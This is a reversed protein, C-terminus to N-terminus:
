GLRSAPLGGAPQCAGQVSGPLEEYGVAAVGLEQLGQLRISKGLPFQADLVASAAVYFEWQSVDLPDVLEEDLPVLLCFVYVDARRQLNVAAASAGAEGARSVRIPFRVEAAAEEDRDLCPYCASTVEIKLGQSHLLYGAAGEQPRFSAPLGLACSVIYAALAPRTWDDLLDSASWRWFDLLTPGLNGTRARFPEDGSKRPPVPLAQQGEATSENGNAGNHQASAPAPEAAPAPMELVAPASPRIVQHIYIVAALLKRWDGSLSSFANDLATIVDPSQAPAEAHYMKDADVHRVIAAEIQASSLESWPTLGVMAAWDFGVQDAIDTVLQKYDTAEAGQSASTRLLSLHGCLAAPTDGPPAGIIEHLGRRYEQSTSALLFHLEPLLNTM